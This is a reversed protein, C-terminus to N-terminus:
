FDRSNKTHRPCVRFNFPSEKLALRRQQVKFQRLNHRFGLRAARALLLPPMLWRITIISWKYSDIEKSVFYIVFRVLGTRLLRSSGMPMIMQVSWLRTVLPYSSRLVSQQLIRLISLLPRISVSLQTRAALQLWVIRLLTRIYATLNSVESQSSRDSSESPLFLLHWSRIYIYRQIPHYVSGM